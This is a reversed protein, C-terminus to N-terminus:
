RAAGQTSAPPYGRRCRWLLERAVGEFLERGEPREESVLDIARFATTVISECQGAASQAHALVLLGRFSWPAREVAGSALALAEEPNQDLLEAALDLTAELDGPALSLGRRFASDRESKQEKGVLAKGLFRWARSDDPHAAVARRALELARAPERQALLESARVHSADEALAEEIERRLEKPTWERPLTLRMSHVEASSLVRESVPPPKFPGKPVVLNSVHGALYERLRRDLSAPGDQRRRSWEPFSTEWASAPEAGQALLSQYESFADARREALYNVLLWSTAYRGPLLADPESERHTWDFLKSVPLPGRSLAALLGQGPLGGMAAAELYSASGEAFWLPQRQIVHYALYHAVEHAVARRQEPGLDGELLIHQRGVEDRVFAGAFASGAALYERLQERHAFAVVPLRETARPLHAPMASVLRARLEELQEVVDVAAPGDLNTKLAFHESTLERWVPGGKALCVFGNPGFAVCASLVIAAAASLHLSRAGM